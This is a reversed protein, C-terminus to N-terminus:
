RLTAGGLAPLPGSANGVGLLGSTAAPFCNWFRLSQDGAGTAVTAGDPSIALYLVRSTHGTLVAQTKLRHRQNLRWICVQNLSYGHTSVIEDVTKSWGLACVQSGTDVSAISSQSLCSWIKITRDATGAGSALIGRRHPSWAVAKVAAVHDGFKCLPAADNKDFDMLMRSSWILLKNDNGGSALFDGCPSWKLGCVEQKHAAKLDVHHSPARVDRVRISKDRGGSAVADGRWSLCGVRSAHVKKSHTVLKKKVADYVLVGGKRTGVALHSGGATWNVSCVTDGKMVDRVDCLEEAAAHKWLSIKSGLGVALLGSRSWDLNSLYFDDALDPADIVKVASSSIRRHKVTEQTTPLGGGFLERRLASAYLPEANEKDPVAAPPRRIFRDGATTM